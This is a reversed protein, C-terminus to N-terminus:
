RSSSATLRLMGRLRQARPQFRSRLEFRVTHNVSHQFGFGDTSQSIPPVAKAQAHHTPPSLTAFLARLEDLADQQAALKRELEVILINQEDNTEHQEDLRKSQAGIKDNQAGIKDNQGQQLEELEDIRQSQAFIKEVQAGVTASMIAVEDGPPPLAEVVPCLHDRGTCEAFERATRHKGYDKHATNARIGYLSNHM